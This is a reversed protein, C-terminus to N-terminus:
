RGPERSAGSSFPILHMRVVALRAVQGAPVIRSIRSFGTSCSRLGPLCATPCSSAKLQMATRAIRPSILPGPDMTPSRAAPSPRAPRLVARTQRRAQLGEIISGPCGQWEIRYFVDFFSDVAFSDNTLLTLRASGPSPQGFDSGASFRLICFDPDGFVQGALSILANSFVQVPDATDRPAHHVVGSLPVFLTRNFGGLLGTGTMDWRLTCDFTDAGGGLTGGSNTSSTNVFSDLTGSFLMGAGPPLGATVLFEEGLEVLECDPAPLTVTNAGSNTETCCDLTAQVTATLVALMLLGPVLARM